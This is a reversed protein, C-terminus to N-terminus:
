RSVRDELGGVRAEKEEGNVGKAFAQDLERL